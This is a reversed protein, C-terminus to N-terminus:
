GVRRTPAQVSSSSSANRTAMPAYVDPSRMLHDRTAARIGDLVSTCHRSRQFFTSSGFILNPGQLASSSAASILARPGAKSVVSNLSHDRNVSSQGPRVGFFQMRRTRASPRLSFFSASIAFFRAASAWFRASSLVLAALAFASAAAAAAAAACDAGCDAGCASAGGSGGVFGSGFRRRVRAVRQACSM